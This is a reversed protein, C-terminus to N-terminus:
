SCHRELLGKDIQGV